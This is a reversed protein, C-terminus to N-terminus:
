RVATGAALLRARVAELSELKRYLARAFFRNGEVTYHGAGVLLTDPDLGGIYLRNTEASSLGDLDEVLDVIPIGQRTAIEHALLRWPSRQGARYEDACPLYNLVLLSGRQAGKDRLSTFIKEAVGPVPDPEGDDRNANWQCTPRILSPLFRQALTTTRFQRAFSRFTQWLRVEVSPEPVPVGVVSLRGGELALRPKAADRYSGDRARAFDDAIFSFLHVDHDIDKADRLYRLYAQDIGYGNVGMNVPEIRSDLEGLEHCWTTDNSVGYGFTFSDGSCIIRVRGGPVTRSIAETNRFGQSNTRAWMGPGYLDATFLDPKNVWGLDPDHHSPSRDRRQLGNVAVTGAIITSAVGEILFLLVLTTIVLVAARTLVTM